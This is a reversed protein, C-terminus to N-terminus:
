PAAFIEDLSRADLIRDCWLDLAALEGDEVQEVIAAPVEGFRKRLQRLLMRRQVRKEQLEEYMEEITRMTTEEDASLDIPEKPRVVELYCVLLSLARRGDPEGAVERVLGAWGRLLETLAVPGRASRLAALVLRVYATGARALIAAEGEAALDDLAFRFRPVFEWLEPPEAPAEILAEFTTAARWGTEGHHLVVPVIAPLRRAAPREKLFAEWIRLMYRLLRLPMWPDVSSQHELLVYVRITAEGLAVSYLLDVHRERLQEDVFSGPELRLTAFDLRAALPGLAHRLEEAAREPRSFVQKFLADHPTETM